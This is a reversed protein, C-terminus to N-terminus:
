RGGGGSGRRKAEVQSRYDRFRQSFLVQQDLESRAMEVDVAGTYAERNQKLVFKAKKDALFLPYNHGLAEPIVEGAMEVLVTMALNTMPSEERLNLVPRIEEDIENDKNHVLLDGWHDYGPFAPRDFTFVHSRVSPDNRSSWLQVYTKVYLREPYIVNRYAGRVRAEGRPLADDPVPVMTRFAADIDVSHWPTPLGASNVVSNTQLLMKDSNFTPLGHGLNALGSARLIPAVTKILESAGSDKTLGIPLLHESWARRTLELVLVLVLYDMDDATIWREGGGSAKTRLPHGGKPNFVHDCVELAAGVVRGWYDKVQPNLKFGEGGEGEGAGTREFIHFESDLERFEHRIRPVHGQDVALRGAIEDLSLEGGDFLCSLAAFKLLQSRPAPIKLDKNVVLMRALELDFGSVRGLETDMGELVSLHNRVLDRTSWVLHAVDGALPRDLLVVKLKPNSALAKVAIYYEALHMIANPLRESEIDVETGSETNQGFVTAADEESLPISASVAQSSQSMPEPDGVEVSEDLFGLGGSYGFAGVYFVLLDLKQDVSCTGDIAIYDVSDAGFFTRATASASAPDVGFRLLEKIDEGAPGRLEDTKGKFSKLLFRTSNRVGEITREELGPLDSSRSSL